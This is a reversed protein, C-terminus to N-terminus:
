QVDILDNLFDNGANLEGLEKQYNRLATTWQAVLKDYKKNKQYLNNFWATKIEYRFVFLTILYTIDLLVVLLSSNMLHVFISCLVFGVFILLLTMYARYNAMLLQSTDRQYLKHSKNLITQIKNIEGLNKVFGKLNIITKENRENEETIEQLDIKIDNLEDQMTDREKLMKNNQTIIYQKYLSPTCDSTNDKLETDSLYINVPNRNSRTTSM